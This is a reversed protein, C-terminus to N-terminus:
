VQFIDTVGSWDGKTRREWYGEEGRKLRWVDEGGEGEGAGASAGTADEVKEFWTPAWDRGEVELQKRRLRQQEELQAKLLEARDLDGGEAARQDPRLRSDTPPLQDREISTVENLSAAFTTLGYRAQANDVLDGVTWMPPKGSTVAGNSTFSLSSTWKGALGLPLDSGDRDFAQVVVEESRGSFMGKAKFTVTAKQGTTENIVTMTSVPEVYKEGAIINRLFCTASNWSFCERNSSILVRARGETILEASKGWFKQTPMPSQTFAWDKSEAHCAMRVPRHSIKEAIFRYGRDERISEFTEGLMPNFPKRIAREKVRNVSFGSVAFATVFLLREATGPSFQAAADLLSSYEMQESARQLLSTPENASVPMSITSLDKGVNKRLFGVLSPPQVTAAPVTSRRRVPELPLPHLFLPKPPFFVKYGDDRSARRDIYEASDEDSSISEKDDDDDDDEDDTVHDSGDVADHGDHRIVLLKSDRADGEDADFFEKSSTSDISRRPTPSPPAPARRHRSECILASFDTVVADLDRLLALHHTNMTEESVNQVSGNPLSTISAQVPVDLHSSVTRRFLTPSSQGSSAKRKWFPRREIDKFYDERPSETPSPEASPGNRGSEVNPPSKTTGSDKTLRRLADRTGAVRGVLVEIRAWEKEEPTNIDKSLLPPTRIALVNPYISGNVASQSATELASRWGKFAKRDGARLHWVETGSDVSIERSNENAAIAALSLPISGRLAFSRRDHYYSLTFSTFDLSFFRRAFGQHRRRRRKYLIGTYFNPSSGRQSNHRSTSPPKSADSTARSRRGVGRPSEEALSAAASPRYGSPSDPNNSGDGKVAAASQLHHQHHNAQPPFNSPYTLLVITVSKSVQKSFTNDFVLAYMGGQGDIVDHNGMSAKDAECKGLWRVLILGNKQLQEAATSAENRSSHKRSAHHRADPGPSPPREVTTSPPLHPSATPGGPRKFIGFNVSKKQPQITWSITHGGAVEVWRVFYSRSHVELQEIGAM